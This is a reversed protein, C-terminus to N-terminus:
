RQAFSLKQVLSLSYGWLRILANILANTVDSCLVVELPCATDYHMQLRQSSSLLESLVFFSGGDKGEDDLSEVTCRNLHM